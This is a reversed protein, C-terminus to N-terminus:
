GEAENLPGILRPWVVSLIFIALVASGVEEVHHGPSRYYPGSAQGCPRDRCSCVSSKALFDGAHDFDTGLSGHRTAPGWVVLITGDPGVPGTPSGPSRGTGAPQTLPRGRPGLRRGCRSTPCHPSLPASATPWGTPVCRFVVARRPLLVDVEDEVHKSSLRMGSPQSRALLVFMFRSM